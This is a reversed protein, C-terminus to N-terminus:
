CIRLYTVKCMSGATGACAAGLRCSLGSHVASLVMVAMRGLGARLGLVGLAVVGPGVGATIALCVKQLQKSLIGAKVLILLLISALILLSVAVIIYLAIVPREGVIGSFM